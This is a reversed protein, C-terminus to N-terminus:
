KISNLSALSLALSSFIPAITAYYNVGDMVGIHRPVFIVSGPYIPTDQALLNRIGKTYVKKTEGNPSVIFIFNKSSFRTLGGSSEIYNNLSLDDKFTVSGPNGVEGFIYVNSSYTPIFIEDGDNLYINDQINDKLKSENFEVIIRGTPEYSKLESLLYGIGQAGSSTATSGSVIFKILNQYSKSAFMSELDKASERFLSGGFPYASDTYGGSRKIIDLVKDSSSISYKGPNKINGNITITGVAEKEAYISDLHAVKFSSLEDFNLKYSVFKNNEFRVLNFLDKKSEKQIGGAFKILDEITENEELEFMAIKNFGYGARVLNLAPGVHISDGSRLFPINNIDGFLLAQYLDISETNSNNKNNRILTIDRLTGNDDIGGSVNLAQLINSNGSLTYIGPFNVNGTVLINIDRIESLSVHVEVGIFAKSYKNKILDTVQEFNLGSVLVPGIENILISGDRKVELILSSEETGFLDIKIYDGYDLVYNNGFNPENVPMFSSQMTNFLRLGYRETSDLLSQQKKFNDWEKITELKSIESSPRKILNKSDDSSYRMESMVDDRVSEPLSDLFDKDMASLSSLDQSYILTSTSLIALLLIKKM